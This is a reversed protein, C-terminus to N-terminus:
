SWGQFFCDLKNFAGVCEVANVIVVDGLVASFFDCVGFNHAREVGFIFGLRVQIVIPPLRMLYGPSTPVLVLDSSRKLSTILLIRHALSGFVDGKVDAVKVELSWQVTGFIEPDIDTVNRLLEDVFVVKVFVHAIAPDVKFNDMTYIAEWM